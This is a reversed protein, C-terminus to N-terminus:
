TETMRPISRIHGSHKEMVHLSFPRHHDANTLLLCRYPAIREMTSSAITPRSAIPKGLWSKISTAAHTKPIPCALDPLHSNLKSDGHPNRNCANSQQEIPFRQTFLNIHSAVRTRTRGWVRLNANMVYFNWFFLKRYFFCACEGSYLKVAM